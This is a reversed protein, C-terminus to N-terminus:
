RVNAVAPAACGPGLRYVFAPAPSVLTDLRPALPPAVTQLAARLGRAVHWGVGGPTATLTDIREWCPPVDQLRRIPERSSWSWTQTDLIAVRERELAAAPLHELPEIRLPALPTRVLGEFVAARYANTGAYIETSPHRQAYLLTSQSNATFVRVSSQQLLALLLGPVVVLAAVFPAVARRPASALALGAALCLPAMFMLMYNTQKPVFILPSFSVPLLSLAALM